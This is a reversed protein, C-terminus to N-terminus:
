RWGGEATPTGGALLRDLLVDVRETTLNEHYSRDVQMM